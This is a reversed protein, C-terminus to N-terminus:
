GAKVLDSRHRLSKRELEALRERLLEEDFFTRAIFMVQDNISRQKRRSERVIDDYVDPSFRLTSRVTM